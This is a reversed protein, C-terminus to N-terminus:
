VMLRLNDTISKVDADTGAGAGAGVDVDVDVDVWRWSEDSIVETSEKESEKSSCGVGFKLFWM